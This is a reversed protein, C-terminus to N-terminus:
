GYLSSSPEIVVGNSFNGEFITSDSWVFRGKGHFLGNHFSGEYTSKNDFSASGNGEYRGKVEDVDGDYNTVILESLNPEIAQEM